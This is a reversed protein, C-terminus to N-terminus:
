PVPRVSNQARLTTTATWVLRRIVVRFACFEPAPGSGANM